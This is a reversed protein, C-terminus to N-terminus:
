GRSGLLWMMEPRYEQRERPLRAYLTKLDDAFTKRLPAPEVRISQKTRTRKPKRERREGVKTEHNTLGLFRKLEALQNQEARVDSPSSSIVFVRGDPFRFCQHKKSRVLKGGHASILSLLTM